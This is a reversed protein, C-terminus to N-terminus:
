GIVGVFAPLSTFLPVAVAVILVIATTVAQPLNRGAKGTAGSTPQHVRTPGPSFVRALFSQDPSAM